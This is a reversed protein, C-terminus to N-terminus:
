HGKEHSFFMITVESSQTEKEKQTQAFYSLFFDTSLQVQLKQFFLM